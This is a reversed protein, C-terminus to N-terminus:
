QFSILLMMLTLQKYHKERCQVTSSQIFPKTADINVLIVPGTEILSFCILQEGDIDTAYFNGFDLCNQHLVDLDESRLLTQTDLLFRFKSNLNNSRTFWITTTEQQLHDLVSKIVRMIEEEASLGSDQALEEPTRRRGWIRRRWSRNRM